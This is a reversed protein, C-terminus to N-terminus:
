VRGINERRRIDVINRKVSIECKTGDDGDTWTASTWRLIRDRGALDPRPYIGYSRQVAYRDRALSELWISAAHINSGKEREKERVDRM